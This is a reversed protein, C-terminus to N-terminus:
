EDDESETSGATPALMESELLQVTDLREGEANELGALFELLEMSPTEDPEDAAFATSFLSLLCLASVKTKM